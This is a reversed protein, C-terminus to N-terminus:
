RASVHRSQQEQQGGQYRCRRASGLAATGLTSGQYEGATPRLAQSMDPNKSDEVTQADPGIQHDAAAHTRDDACHIGASIPSPLDIGQSPREL